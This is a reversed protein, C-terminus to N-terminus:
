KRTSTTSVFQCLGDTLACMLNDTPAILYHPFPYSVRRGFTCVCPCVRVCVRVRVCVFTHVCVPVCM